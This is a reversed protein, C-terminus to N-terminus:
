FIAELFTVGADEDHASDLHEPTATPTTTTPFDEDESFTERAVEITSRKLSRNEIIEDDDRSPGQIGRSRVNSVAGKRVNTEHAKEKDETIEPESESAQKESNAAKEVKPSDSTEDDKEGTCGKNPRPWCCSLFLGLWWKRWFKSRSDSWGSIFFIAISFCVLSSSSTEIGGM